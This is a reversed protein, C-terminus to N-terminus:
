EFGTIALAGDSVFDASIGVIADTSSSSGFSFIANGSYYATLDSRLPYILLALATRAVAMDQLSDLAQDHWGTLNGSWDGVGAKRDVWSDGHKIYEASQTTIALSWSNAGFIETGSIYILGNIGHVATTFAV